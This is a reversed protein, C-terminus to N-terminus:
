DACQLIDLKPGYGGTLGASLLHEKETERLYIKNRTSIANKWKGTPTM